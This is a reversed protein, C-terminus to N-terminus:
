VRGGRTPLIGSCGGQYRKQKCMGGEDVQVRHKLARMPVLLSGISGPTQRADDQRLHCWQELRLITKRHHVWLARGSTQVRARACVCVGHSHVCCSCGRVREVRVLTRKGRRCPVACTEPRTLATALVRVATGTNLLGCTALYAVFVHVRVNNFNSSGPFLAVSTGINFTQEGTGASDRGSDPLASARSCPAAHPAAAAALLIPEACSRAHRARRMCQTHAKARPLILLPGRTGKASCSAGGKTQPLNSDNYPIWFDLPDSKACVM